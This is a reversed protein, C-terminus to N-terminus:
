MTDHHYEEPIISWPDDLYINGPLDNLEINNYGLFIYPINKTEKLFEENLITVKNMDLDLYKLSDPVNKIKPLETLRCNSLDIYELCRNNVLDLETNEIDNLLVILFKLKPLKKIFNFNSITNYTLIVTELEKNKELFSFDHIFPTAQITIYKLNKLKELGIIEEIFYGSSKDLHIETTESSVLLIKDGKTTKLLLEEQPEAILFNFHIALLIVILIKIKM